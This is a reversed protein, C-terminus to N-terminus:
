LKIQIFSGTCSPLSTTNCGLGFYFTGYLEEFSRAFTGATFRLTETWTFTDLSEFVVNIFQNDTVKVYTLVYAKTSRDLIDMPIADVGNVNFTILHPQRFLTCGYLLEPLTQQDNDAKGAIYLLQNLTKTVRIIKHYGMSSNPIMATGLGTMMFSTGNWKMLDYPEYKFNLFTHLTAIAYVSGQYEFVTYFRQQQRTTIPTYAPKWTNGNDSSVVINPNLGDSGLGAFLLGNSYALDFVHIGRPITSHKLWGTSELTYFNGIDWSGTSDHGTITLKGNIIKYMDIQEEDVVFEQVMKRTVTDFYTIPTAGSNSDPPLNSSNGQGLYIRNNFLQLDWINWNYKAKKSLLDFTEARSSLDNM